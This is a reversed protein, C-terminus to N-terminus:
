DPVEIDLRFEIGMVLDPDQFRITGDRFPAAFGGPEAEWEGQAAETFNLKVETDGCALAWTGAGNFDEYADHAYIPNYSADTMTFTGDERITLTGSDDGVAVWVGVPSTLQPGATCGALVLVGVSVLSAVSVRRCLPTRTNM